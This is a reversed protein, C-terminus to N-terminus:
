CLMLSEIQSASKLRKNGPGWGLYSDIESALELLKFDMEMREAINLPGEINIHKMSYCNKVEKHMFKEYISDQANLM